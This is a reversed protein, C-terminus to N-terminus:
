RCNLSRGSGYRLRAGANEALSERHTRCLVHGAEHALVRELIVARDGFPQLAEDVRGDTSLLALNLYTTRVPLATFAPVHREVGFQRLTQRWGAEDVVVYRWWNGGFGGDLRLQRLARRVRERNLECDAPAVGGACVVLAGATSEARAPGGTAAAYDGAGAPPAPQAGATIAM